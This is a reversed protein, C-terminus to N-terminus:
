EYFSGTIRNVYVQNGSLSANQLVQAITAGDVNLDVKITQNGNTEVGFRNMGTVVNGSAIGEGITKPVNTDVGVIPPIAPANPNEPTPPQNQLKIIRKVREELVDLYAEWSAFPNKAAPLDALTRALQETFGQSKALEYTLKSALAQDENLLAMQLTLRKREDESIQGNLAAIIQIRNIDFMQASKKLAAQEKLAKTQKQLLAALEKQRKAADIEAQTLKKQNSSYQLEKLHQNDSSAPLQQSKLTGGTSSLTKFAGFFGFVRLFPVSDIWNSFDKLWGIGPLSGLSSALSAIAYAANSINDALTQFSGALKTVDGENGTLLLLAEVLGKGITEKAEGAATNLLDMKGAYTTLYEAQSGQFQKNLLVMIEQFNKAKLETQTLGLNYKKLGKLNGVYAQALDNAVTALAVGSGASIDIANKLLEQSNIVSGTTTLLDQLAPRLVDDAIGASLSLSDIFDAIQPNAFSLGLNDVTKALRRAAAEDEMFAKVSAKGFATVATVSLAAALSRGLRKASKDLASVSKDASTFAKKGTFEAALSIVINSM